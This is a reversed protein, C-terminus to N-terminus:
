SVINYGMLQRGDTLTTECEATFVLPMEETGDENAGKFNFQFGGTNAFVRYLDLQRDVVGAATTHSVRMAYPTLEQTSTGAYITESAIPTVTTFAITITQATTTVGVSDTDIVLSYGSRSNADVVVVFDDTETLAGDTSGTVSAITPEASLAYVTGTNGSGDGVVEIPIASKGTFGTAIVHDAIDTEASAAITVREFLGAGLAEVGEPDLNILTFDGGITINKLQVNLNGANATEVKNEDYNMTATVATSIAGVDIFAGSQGPQISVKCGDPFFIKNTKTTQAM